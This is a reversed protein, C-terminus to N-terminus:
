TGTHATYTTRTFDTGSGKTKITVSQADVKRGKLEAQIEPSTTALPMEDTVQDPSIEMLAALFNKVNGLAPQHTLNVVWSVKEGPAHVTSKVVEFEVIYFPQRKAGGSPNYKISEIALTHLAQSRDPMAKLYNGGATAPVKSIGAFPNHPANM